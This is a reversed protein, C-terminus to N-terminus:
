IVRDVLYKCTEVTDGDTYGVLVLYGENIQSIEKDNVTLRAHNVRQVIVRM